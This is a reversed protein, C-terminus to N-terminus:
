NSYCGKTGFRTLHRLIDLFVSRVELCTKDEFAEHIANVLYLLQNTTSDGPRFGSQNKTILNNSNLYLYLNNFVIKEFLKGCIPLLSIPRYNKVLQKNEKKFIPTVNALKWLDPYISSALINRFIIQLPLVVSEDFLLLMHGSIGDSSAAKNPDLNRILSLIENNQVNVNKLKKDTLFNFSPLISDNINLKCQKAFFENFLKAKDICNLIFAGNHLIPPIKPARCKNMVQRIIKWYAKHTTGPEVLKKGLNALYDVKASAVANQCETRFDDLRIKDENKYGNKKYNKYLRNKRRLMTKLPKNIWPPDRPVFRKNDNPVFNSMINTQKIPYIMVM